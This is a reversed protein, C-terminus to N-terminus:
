NCKQFDACQESNDFIPKTLWYKGKEDQEENVCDGKGKEFDDADQPVPFFHECEKCTAM